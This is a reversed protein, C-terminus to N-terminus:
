TMTAKDIFYQKDEPEIGLENMMQCYLRYTNEMGNKDNMRLYIEILNEYLYGNYPFIIIIRKLLLIAEVLNNQETYKQAIKLLTYTYLNELERRKEEAWKYHSETLYGEQYIETLNEYAKSMQYDSKSIQDILQELKDVDTQIYENSLYYNYRKVTIGVGHRSLDKRLYYVTTYLLKKAKDVDYDLWLADIISESSVEEGKYHVLYAMLEEVKKTRWKIIEGAENRAEFRKMTKVYIKAAKERFKSREKAVKDIMRQLREKKVPKLIYDSADIEYADYAYQRHATVFVIEVAANINQIEQAIELGNKEPTEIDIFAIDLNDQKAAEIFEQYKTYMGIIKVNEFSKLQLELMKLAPIEDDFLMVTLM